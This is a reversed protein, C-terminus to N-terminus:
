IRSSGWFKIMRDKNGGGWVTIPHYITVISTSTMMQNQFNNWSIMLCSQTLNKINSREGSQNPCVSLSLANKFETFGKRESFLIISVFHVEAESKGNDIKKAWIKWFIFFFIKINRQYFLSTLAAGTPCFHPVWM